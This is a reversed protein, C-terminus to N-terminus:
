VRSIIQPLIWLVRLIARRKIHRGDILATNCKQLNSIVYHFDNNQEWTIREQSIYEVKLTNLPMPSPPLTSHSRGQHSRFRNQPEKMAVYKPLVERVYMMSKTKNMAYLCKLSIFNENTHVNPKIRQPEVASQDLCLLCNTLRWCMYM